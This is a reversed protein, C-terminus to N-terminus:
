LMGAVAPKQSFLALKVTAPWFPEGVVLPRSRMVCPVKLMPVDLPLEIPKAVPLVIMTSPPATLAVPRKPTVAAPM